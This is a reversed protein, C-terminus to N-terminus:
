GRLKRILKRVCKPISWYAKAVVGETFHKKAALKYGNEAIEKIIADRKEPKNTSHTLCFNSEIGYEIPFEKYECQDKIQAFIEEGHETNTIVMSVGRDVDGKFDYKEIGWFDALTIDSVRELTAYRCDYCSDRFILYKKFANYFSSNTYIGNFKKEKGSKLVTYSYGHAHNYKNDKVRFSFDYLKGDHKEELTKIYDDFVKQSPVGHCIIDATFLNESYKDGIFNKLASVQCPTSCFFVKEGNKLLEYVERYIGEADSQVYKSKLLADLESESKIIRHVLRTGEFAAGCVFYGKKLFYLASLKFIGGSSGGNRVNKDKAYAAYLHREDEHKKENEIPCVSYCKGCSICKQEDIVTYIFGDRAVTKSICGIPCSDVCVLCGTCKDTLNEISYINNM